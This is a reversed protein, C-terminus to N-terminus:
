RRPRFRVEVVHISSGAVTTIAYWSQQIYAGYDSYAFERSQGNTILPMGGGTGFQDVTSIEISPTAGVLQFTFAAMVRDANPGLLTTQSVGVPVVSESYDFFEGLVRPDRVPLDLVV